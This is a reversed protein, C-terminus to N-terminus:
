KKGESVSGNMNEKFKEKARKVEKVGRHVCHLILTLPLSLSRNSLNIICLSLITKTNIVGRRNKSATKWVKFVAKLAIKPGKKKELVTFELLIILRYKRALQM